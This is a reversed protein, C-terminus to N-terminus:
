PFSLELQSPYVFVENENARRIIVTNDESSIPSEPIVFYFHIKDIISLEYDIQSVSLLCSVQSDSLNDLNVIQITNLRAFQQLANMNLKQNNFLTEDMVLSYGPYNEAIIAYFSYRTMQFADNRYFLDILSNSRLREIPIESASFWNIQHFQYINAVIGGLMSIIALINILRIITSNYFLGTLLLAMGFIIWGWGLWAHRYFLWYGIQHYPLWIFIGATIFIMIGIFIGFFHLPKISIQNLIIKPPSFTIRLHQFKQLLELLYNLRIWVLAIVTQLSVLSILQIIPLLRIHIAAQEGFSEPSRCLFFLGIGTFLFCFLLLNWYNSNNELIREVRNELTESKQIGWFLVLLSTALVALTFGLLM